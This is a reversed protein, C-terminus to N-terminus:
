LRNIVKLTGTENEVKFHATCGGNMAGATATFMHHGARMIRAVGKKARNDNEAIRGPEHVALIIPSSM